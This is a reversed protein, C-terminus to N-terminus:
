APELRRTVPGILFLGPIALGFTLAFYAPYGLGEVGLGSFAGAMTRTLGIIATLIAFRTASQAGGCARMFIAILAASGFGATLSEAVSAAYIATRGGIMGAAAYGVNSLAQGLGLVLAGRRLGLRSLLDGGVIAGVGVLVAGVTTSITGVEELTLGSDLWFPKVMPAMASDGLKFLLAFLFLTASDEQTLWTRLTTLWEHSEPEVRTPPPQLFWHHFLLVSQLALVGYLAVDWGYRAGLVVGGGGGLAMAGRYGAVRIGTARGQQDAPVAAVLWGDIAVDQVASALAIAVLVPVVPLTTGLLATGVCAGALGLLMWGRFTGIRDIFPGWFPKLTWPLGVLTMAGLEALSMGKAKLWVPVLENVVGYPM